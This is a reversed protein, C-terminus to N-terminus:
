EVLEMVMKRGEIEIEQKILRNTNIDIYYSNKATNNSIDDTVNVIWVDKGKLIGKHTEKIYANKVGVKSKPNYDFISIISKYEEKLPLWRILQPYLNSDFFDDYRKEAIITKKNNTKDLYFGNVTKTFDLVMERQQNYSSHRIPKLNSLKSITSDIWIANSNKIKVKTIVLVKKKSKTIETFVRAMEIKSSDKQVYWIMEYKEDKIKDKIVENNLPTQRNIQSFVTLSSILTIFILTKM